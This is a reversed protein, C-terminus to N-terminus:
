VFMQQLLGRKWANTKEIQTNVHEIKKEIGTLFDAIKQQEPLSPFLLKFNVFDLYHVRKKEIISGTAMRNYYGIMNYSTLFLEMYKFDAKENCCFINYYKSVSVDFLEKHRALAGFRLNMPNFAFDNTLMRKYANNEDNVLFSREYRESKPVIGDAITLSYLPLEKNPFDIREKFFDGLRKVEWEPFEKGKEDKFRIEQSFIKQMVGKKYQELLTKKRTLQNIKDDVATLFAAIKQQEPAGPVCLNLSKLQSTYLHVISIGQSLIAIDKKKINNLYYSLFIGNLESRIINLDGGLAVGEKMVCSAKAIEIQSEGSAPIIVDNKKSRILEKQNVNTKSIVIHIVEQYSNYLEGYRICEIAGNDSIDAKSLGKGKIFTAIDGLRKEDWEGDFEPFRLAPTSNKM